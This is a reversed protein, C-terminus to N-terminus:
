PAAAQARLADRAASLKGSALLRRIRNLAKTSGPQTQRLKLLMGPATLDSPTALFDPELYERRLTQIMELDRYGYERSPEILTGEGWDNWTAIQIFQSNSRFAKTLSTRFTSGERDPIHGWSKHVNAEAYIDVFRPFAVAISHPWNRAENQFTNIATLGQDPIPWDFAGIAAQRRHHQSFYAFPSSLREQCTQWEPDSLGTQGFSLLLPQGELQVYADLCTWNDILWQLERQAHATRQQTTLRGAQVLAPITQDEYCIAFQMGLQQVQQILQQCNKHILPYDRFDSLGYWDLLVGDIGALKMLLLQYEVVHPNGSDYPGILPYFHAAIERQGNKRIDPDFANMTWHWGWNTSTPKAAFWPMYHALILRSSSGAPTPARGASQPDSGQPAAAMTRSHPCSRTGSFPPVLLLLGLCLTGISWRM